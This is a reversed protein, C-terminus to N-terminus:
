GDGSLPGIVGEAFLRLSEDLDASAQTNLVVTDFGSVGAM